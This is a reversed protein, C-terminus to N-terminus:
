SRRSDSPRWPGVFDTLDTIEGAPDGGTNGARADQVPRHSKRAKADKEEPEPAEEEPGDDDKLDDAPAAASAVVGLLEDDLTPLQRTRQPDELPEDEPIAVLAQTMQAERTIVGSALVTNRHRLAGNERLLDDVERRARAIRKSMRLHVVFGGVALGLIFGALVPVWMAALAAGGLAIVTGLAGAHGEAWDLVTNVPKPIRM